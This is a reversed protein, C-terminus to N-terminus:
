SQIKKGIAACARYICCILVTIPITSGIDYGLHEM